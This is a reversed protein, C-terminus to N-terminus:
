ILRTFEIQVTDATTGAGGHIDETGEVGYIVSWNIKKCEIEINKILEQYEANKVGDANNIFITANIYVNLTCWDDDAQNSMADTLQYRMVIKDKEHNKVIRNRFYYPKKTSKGFKGQMGANNLAQELSSVAEQIKEAKTM